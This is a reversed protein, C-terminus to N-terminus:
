AQGSVRNECTKLYNYAARAAEEQNPYMFSEVSLVRDYNIISLAKITEDFDYHGHGPYWRDNDAIHCHGIKGNASKIARPIDAEEINMHYTDIHLKLHDNSFFQIFDLGEKITNLFDSEYRNLIELVLPVKNQEVFPLLEELSQRLNAIYADKGPCDKVLGKILGIIVVANYGAATIVHERIREIAKSRVTTDESSLSIHDQVYASGTGISALTIHNKDMLERLRQRDLVSSDHIHLEMAEFGIKAALPVIQEYPGRLVLPATEAASLTGTIALRM